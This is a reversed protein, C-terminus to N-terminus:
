RSIRQVLPNESGGHKMFVVPGLAATMSGVTRPFTGVDSGRARVPVGAMQETPELKARQGWSRCM